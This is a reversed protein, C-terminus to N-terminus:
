RTATFGGAVDADPFEASFDGAVGTPLTTLTEDGEADDDAVGVPGFFSVNWSGDTNPVTGHAANVTESTYIPGGTTLSIATLNVNFGLDEGTAGDEFNDITGSIKYQDDAPIDTGGFVATLTADATFYGGVASATEVNGQVLELEKTVYKGGAAGDYTAEGLLQNITGGFAMGGGSFTAFAHDGDADAPMQLWYGFYLYDTKQDAQLEVDDTSEFAWGNGLSAVTGSDVGPGPTEVFGVTCTGTTCTFTGPIGNYTGMVTEDDQEADDAYGTYSTEDSDLLVIVSSFGVPPIPTGPSPGYALKKGEAAKINTYINVIEAPVDDEGGRMHTQGHWDMIAPPAMDESMAYAPDINENESSSLTIKTEGGGAETSRTVAAATPVGNDDAAVAPSRIAM